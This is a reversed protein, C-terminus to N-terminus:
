FFIYNSLKTNDTFAFTTITDSLEDDVCVNFGDCYKNHM